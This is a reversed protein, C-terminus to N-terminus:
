LSKDSFKKLFGETGIVECCINKLEEVGKDYIGSIADEIVVLKFDRESAEYISTRPCNPFNCGTFVLTIVGKEKLFTELPTKYFAGWRSKYIVFENQAIKQIEGKLLKEADLRVTNPKLEKVLESGISNPAIVKLGEEVKKKRCIDVNSGDKKYIRVVHMILKNKERFKNLVKVMNPIVEYTGKIEYVAGKLSFDNQTDITVLGISSYDPETYQDM